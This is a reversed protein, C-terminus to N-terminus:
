SDQNSQARAFLDPIPGVVEVTENEAAFTRSVWEQIAPIYLRYASIPNSLRGAGPRRIKVKEFANMGPPAYKTAEVNAEPMKNAVIRPGNDSLKWGLHTATETTVDGLFKGGVILHTDSIKWLDEHRMGEAFTIWNSLHHKCIVALINNSNSNQAAMDRHTKTLIPVYINFESLDRKKYWRYVAVRNKSDLAWAQIPVHYTPDNAIRSDSQSVVFRRDHISMGCHSMDNSLFIQNVYCPTEYASVYKQKITFVTRTASSKIKVQNPGKLDSADIEQYIVLVKDKLLHNESATEKFHEAKLAHHPGIMGCLFNIMMDKGVGQVARFYLIKETKVGPKQCIHAVINHFANEAQKDHGTMHQIHTIWPQVRREIEEDSMPSTDKEADFGRWTNYVGQPCERPPPYCGLSRYVRKDPDQEWQALYEKPQELHALNFQQQNIFDVRGGPLLRAYTLPDLVKFNQLEFQKKWKKYRDVELGAQCDPFIDDDMTKVSYRVHLGIKDYIHRQLECIKDEQPFLMTKPVVLGDWKWLINKSLDDTCGNQLFDLAARTIADEIDNVFHCLAVGGRTDSKGEKIAHETMAAAFEPYDIKLTEYCLAIEGVIKIVGPHEAFTRIKDENGQVFEYGFASPISPCSGVISLLARKTEATPVGLEKFHSLIGDRDTVYERIAPMELRDGFVGLLITYYSNVLDITKHTDHYLTNVFKNPMFPLQQGYSRGVQVCGKYGEPFLFTRQTMVVQHQWANDTLIRNMATIRELNRQILRDQKYKDMINDFIDSNPAEHLLLRPHPEPEDLIRKWLFPEAQIRRRQAPPMPFDNNRRLMAQDNCFALM